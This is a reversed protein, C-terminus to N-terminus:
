LEDKGQKRAEKDAKRQQRAARRLMRDYADRAKAAEPPLEVYQAHITFEINKL